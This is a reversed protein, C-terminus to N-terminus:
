KRKRWAYCVLGILGATLLVLSSPEPVGSVTVSDFSVSNGATVMVNIRMAVDLNAVTCKGANVGAWTASVETPAWKISVVDGQHWQQLGYGFNKSAWNHGHKDVVNLYWGSQGSVSGYVFQAFPPTGDVSGGAFGFWCVGPNAGLTFTLTASDGGVYQGASTDEGRVCTVYGNSPCSVHLEGGSETANTGYLTKWYSSVTDDNFQDSFPITGASATCAIVCAVMAVVTLVCSNGLRM